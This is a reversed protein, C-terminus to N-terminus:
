CELPVGWHGKKVRRGSNRPWRDQRILIYKIFCSTKMWASSSRPIVSSSNYCQFTGRHLFLNAVHSILQDRMRSLIFETCFPPLIIALLLRLTAIYRKRSSPLLGSAIYSHCKHTSSKYRKTYKVILGELHQM